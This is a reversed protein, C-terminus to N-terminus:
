FNFFFCVFKIGNRFGNPGYDSPWIDETSLACHKGIITQILLGLLQNAPGISQNSCQPVLGSPLM